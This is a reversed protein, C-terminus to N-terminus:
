KLGPNRQVPHKLKARTEARAAASEQQTKFKHHWDCLWRLAAIEHDNRDGWHDCDTGPMPCRSVFQASEIPYKPHGEWECRGGAIEQRAQRRQEWDPPLTQKRDTPREVWGSVM